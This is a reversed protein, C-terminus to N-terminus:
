MLLERLRANLEKQEEKLSDLRMRDLPSLLGANKEKDLRVIESKIQELKTQISKVKRELLDSM